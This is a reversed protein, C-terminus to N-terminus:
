AGEGLEETGGSRRVIRDFESDFERREDERDSRLREIEYAGRWSEEHVCPESRNKSRNTCYDTAAKPPIVM